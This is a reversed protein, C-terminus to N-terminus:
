RIVDVINPLDALAENYSSIAYILHKEFYLKEMKIGRTSNFCRSTSDSIEEIRSDRRLNAVIRALPTLFDKDLKYIDINGKDLYPKIQTQYLDFIPQYRNDGFPEKGLELELAVGYRSFAKLLLQLNQTLGSYHLSANDLYLQFKSKLTEYNNTMVSIFGHVKNSVLVASRYDKSKHREIYTVLDGKDLTKLVDGSLSSFVQLNPIVVMEKKHEELFEELVAIQKRLPEELCQIEALWREGAKTVKKRSTLWDFLKNVGIGLLLTLVPFVYKWQDQPAPSKAVVVNVLSHGVPRLTITDGEQVRTTDTYTTFLIKRNTSDPIGRSFSPICTMFCLFFLTRM